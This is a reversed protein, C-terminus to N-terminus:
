KREIVNEISVALMLHIKPPQFSYKNICIGYKLIQPDRINFFERNKSNKNFKPLVYQQNNNHIHSRQPFKMVPFTGQFRPNENHKSPKDRFLICIFLQYTETEFKMISNM